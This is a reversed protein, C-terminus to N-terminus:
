HEQAIGPRMAVGNQSERALSETLSILAGKTATTRSDSTALRAVISSINIIRGWGSGIMDQLATISCM